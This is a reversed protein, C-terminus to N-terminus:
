DGNGLHLYGKFWVFTVLIVKTTELSQYM